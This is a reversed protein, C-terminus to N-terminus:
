ITVVPSLAGKGERCISFSQTYEGPSLTHTVNKVYYMGDYSLGAGRVGVLHRTRLVHRYRITDVEGKGDVSDPQSFIQASMERLTAAASKNATERLIGVKKTPSRMGALPPLRTFPPPPLQINIKSYPEIFSAKVAQSALGEESFSLNKVNTAAGFGITLAPQAVGARIKSGWFATSSKLGTPEIYFVFGNRKALRQIFGLDTEQKSTVSEVDPRTETTQTVMPVIGYQAYNSLINNVIISDSQNPYHMNSEELDMLLSIDKGMVTFTSINSDHGPSIQHNTIVGDILVEPVTGLVAAVIVRNFIALESSNVLNYDMQKGKSASFSIQFGDGTEDSSNVQVRSFARMIEPSAPRPVSTGMLLMLRINSQNNSM